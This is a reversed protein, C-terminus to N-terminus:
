PAPFPGLSLALFPGRPPRCPFPCTDVASPAEQTLAEPGGEWAPAPFPVWSVQGGGRGCGSVPSRGCAPVKSEQGWSQRSTAPGPGLREAQEAPPWAARSEGPGLSGSPSRPGRAGLPPAWRGQPDWLRPCFSIHIQPATLNSESSFVASLTERAPRFHPLGRGPEVLCCPSRELQRYISGYEQRWTRVESRLLISKPLPLCM